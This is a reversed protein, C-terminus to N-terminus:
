TSSVSSDRLCVIFIRMNCFVCMADGQPRATLSTWAVPPPAAHSAASAAINGGVQGIMTDDHYTGTLGTRRTAHLLDHRHVPVEVM